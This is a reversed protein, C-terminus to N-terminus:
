MWLWWQGLLLVCAAIAANSVLHALVAGGVGNTRRQAFAFLLGAITAAMWAQHIAGFAISSVILPLMPTQGPAVAMFDRSVLRRLLYGRFALEEALPVVLVSGAVRVFLWPARVSVPLAVWEAEWAGIADLGPRPALLVFAAAAALGAIAATWSWRWAIDRYYRRCLVLPVLAAVARLGYLLDIHGSVATTALSTAVLALFPLLFATTPSGFGERAPARSFFGSRQSWLVLSLSVACFVLWGARTHFGGAAVRYSIVSGVLVLGVLRAVNSLWACLLGIPLLLLANPFRLTRRALVLYSAVFVSMLGLGELGSCVPAIVVPFRETGILAMSPVSVADAFLANLSLDAARLTLPGLPWWLHASALGALWAGAGIVIGAGLGPGAVRGLAVLSSPRVAGAVATALSALVVLCFFSLWLLPPGDPPEAPPFILASLWWLCAFSVLHLAVFVATTRGSIGPALLEAFRRRDGDTCVVLAAGAGGVAVFVGLWGLYAGVSWGDAREILPHAEFAIGLSAYEAVLLGVLAWRVARM